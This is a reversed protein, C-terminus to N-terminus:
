WSSMRDDAVRERWYLMEDKNLPQELVEMKPVLADPLPRQLDDGSYIRNTMHVFICNQCLVFMHDSFKWQCLALPKIVNVLFKIQPGTSRPSPSHGGPGEPFRGASMTTAM